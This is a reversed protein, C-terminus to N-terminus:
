NYPIESVLTNTPTAQDIERRVGSTQAARVGACRPRAGFGTEPLDQANEPGVRPVGSGAPGAERGM